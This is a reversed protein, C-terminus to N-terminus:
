TTSLQRRKYSVMVKGKPEPVLKSWDTKPFPSVLRLEFNRLLHSWIAKIQLYAYGEGVCSNRGGGFSTYSFKGGVKDEERGPGFRGPDYLHPDKYIYAVRNSIVIPSAITHGAPVRYEHGERTRVAFQKLATRVMTPAPPHLRLAEKICRHLTPMDTLFGYHDTITGTGDAAAAAHKRVLHEQEDVAAALFERHSLLRAGTWVSAHTSTHKAAFLLSIVLGAVEAEAAARGDDRYRSDILSQLVDHKGNGAAEQHDHHHDGQLKRSRVIDSIIAHLKERAADRRRNSPIVRSYPFFVSMLNLGNEIDRFLRCVEDFRAMVERGLLCRGSILLLLQELEHKLDVTGDQGWKAFYNEVEQVMPDVHIRLRNPKLAEVFFRGQEMRTADDVGHGVERGFMPVTFEFLRGHGVESELGQFFHASAEPGVLFTVRLVGVTFVSGFETYLRRMMAPVDGRLLAPLLGLLATCNVVPPPPPTECAVGRRRRRAIETVAATIALAAIALLVAGTSTIEM